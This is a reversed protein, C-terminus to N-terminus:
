DVVLKKVSRFNEGRLEILYIGATWKEVNINMKWENINDQQYIVQGLLNSVSLAVNKQQLKHDLEITVFDNAPNPYVRFDIPQIESTSSLTSNFAGFTPANTVFDGTGNPIRANPVNTTQAGFSLSDIVTGDFHVLMLQEGLSSLKFDTHLGDQTVDKDAWVILYEDVAISTGAPFAWQKKNNFNDTLYFDTLDIETNTNNYIEIWDDFDGNSDTIGSLSDNSAVFENIVVDHWSIASTTSECTHNLDILNQELTPIRHNFFEKLSPINSSGDGDSIDYNFQDFTFAYNTDDEVADSILAGNFDIIPELRDFTYNHELIQCCYDLYKERFAPVDMIKDILVKESNNLILPFDNFNPSNMSTLFIFDYNAQCDGTWNETCCTPEINVVQVFIPDDSPYPCSGNIITECDALDTPLIVGGGNVLITEYLDQCNGDWLVNCCFPNQNITAIFTTDTAPYPCTGDIITQCDAPDSPLDNGGGGVVDFLDGGFALNYDWPIWFFLDSVPEHYLYFNRGHEIYSDWNNTMIDVALVRLYYDVNFVKVISDAFENNPTNNLVDVFEIFDSFDSTTKNTRLAISEAYDAPNDGLWNLSSWGINKYLDGDGSAFNNKVFTKDIQETILYLGWYEDNLFVKAYSTRPARIGAGRMIDFALFDRQMAPDGIGNTLNIKKIGDYSQGSIFENFDLKLSKKFQNSSFHSSFGKQRVGVSDLINGDISIKGELYPVNTPVGNVQNNFYNDTMIQWFSPDDFTVRIEHVYSTDFIVEGPNQAFINNSFFLTLIFIYKYNM